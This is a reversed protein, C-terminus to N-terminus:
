DNFAVTCKGLCGEVVSLDAEFTAKLGEYQVKFQHQPEYKLKAEPYFNSM